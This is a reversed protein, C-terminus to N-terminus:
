GCGCGALQTVFGDIAAHPAAQGGGPTKDAVIVFLLQRGDADVVTGALATGGPLSGTKARVLGSAPSDVFRTSLTGRLGAIPLAAAIQRLEPHNPDTIAQLLGLLTHASLVAGSGLGSSDVLHAGTTDVGLSRDRALVAQTAGDFSGPLGAKLAVLRGVVETLVNDSRDLFFDIIQGLPASQVAGLQVADGPATVRTPPGTVTIGEATLAAAFQLAAALAPDAQRQPYEGTGSLAAINVALASIPAAYGDALDSAKWAPNLAPGTFLADDVGLTVTKTGVLTLGRAVQHALDALGARGNVLTPDGKGAALMMDGGGVLVIQGATTRVVRTAFTTQTGMSSLAAVATALKATSAPTHPGDLDHQALVAGTRQDTVVAGVSPGLRSDAVLAGLLANVRDAAPVAAGVTLNALVGTLEPAAVAGPATPFPTPTPPPPSLTILGPVIDYADAVAYGGAGLLLALVGVGMLRAARRM